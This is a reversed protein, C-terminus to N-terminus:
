PSLFSLPFLLGLSSPLCPLSLVAGGVLGTGSHGHRAHLPEGRWGAATRACGQWGLRAVRRRAGGAAMGHCARPACCVGAGILRAMGRLKALLVAESWRM